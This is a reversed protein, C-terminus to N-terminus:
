SSCSCAKVPRSQKNIAEFLMSATNLMQWGFESGIGGQRYKMTVIGKTILEQTIKYINGGLDFWGIVGVKVQTRSYEWVRKLDARIEAV